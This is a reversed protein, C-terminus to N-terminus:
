SAKRRGEWGKGSRGGEGVGEEGGGGAPVRRVKAGNGAGEAAMPPLVQVVNGGGGGSFYGQQRAVPPSIICPTVPTISVTTGAASSNNATHTPHRRPTSLPHHHSHPEAAPSTPTTPETAPLSPLLFDCNYHIMGLSASSPCRQLRIDDSADATAQIPPVGAHSFNKVRARDRTHAPSDPLSIRSQRRKRRRYLAMICAFLIIGITASGVAVVVTGATSLKPTFNMRFWDAVRQAAMVVRDKVASWPLVGLRDLALLTLAALVATVTLLGVTVFLCVVWRRRKRRTKVAGPGSTGHEVVTQASTDYANDLPSSVSRRREFSEIGESTADTITNPIVSSRSLGPTEVLKKHGKEPLDRALTTASLPSLSETRTKGAALLLASSTAENIVTRASGSGARINPWRPFSSASANSPLHPLVHNLPHHLSAPFPSDATAIPTASRASQSPARSGAISATADERVSPQRQYPTTLYAAPSPSEARTAPTSAKEPEHLSTWQPDEPSGGIEENADHSRGAVFAEEWSAMAEKLPTNYHSGLSYAVSLDSGQRKLGHGGTTAAAGGAGSSGGGGGGIGAVGVAGLGFNLLSSGSGQQQQQQQQHQPLTVPLSQLQQHQSVSVPQSRATSASHLSFRSATPHHHHSSATSPHRSAPNTFLNGGSGLASPRNFATGPLIGM